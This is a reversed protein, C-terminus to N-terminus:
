DISNALKIYECLTNVSSIFVDSKIREQEVYQGDWNGAMVRHRRKDKVIWRGKEDQESIIKRVAAELSRLKEMKENRSLPKNIKELYKERGLEKVENFRKEIEDLPISTHWGYGTQREISLDELRECYKRGVDYYLIKDTGFEYYRGWRGDPMRVKKLWQIADPIPELYKSSGTHLYIDILSNIVRGTVSGCVAPPEFSRAWAIQLNDNYQQGWGPQPPAIQSQIIFWGVLNISQLYEIKGYYRHADTMVDICDNIGADNFTAFDHYNGQKPYRHPWGGNDLQSEMMMNLGKDIAISLSKKKIVQDLAMLFRLTGQTQNDDFSVQGVPGRSFDIKHEWGGLKTQGWILADGADEAANLCEKNGTVKYARLFAMGVTPTGPPQVEIQTPDDWDKEGYGEGWGRSLDLSYAWLYGGNTSVSHFFKVGKNLANLADNKLTTQSFSSVSFAFILGATVILINMKKM